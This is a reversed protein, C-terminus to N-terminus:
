ENKDDQRRATLYQPQLASGQTQASGSYRTEKSRLSIYQEDTRPYDNGKFRKTTTPTPNFGTVDAYTFHSLGKDRHGIVNDRDPLSRKKSGVNLLGLARGRSNPNLNIAGKILQYMDAKIEIFRKNKRAAEDQRLKLGMKINHEFFKPKVTNIVNFFFQRNLPRGDKRDPLYLEIGRDSYADSTIAKASLESMKPVNVMCVEHTLFVQISNTSSSSRGQNVLISYIEKKSKMISALASTRVTNIVSGDSNKKSELINSDKEVEEQARQQNHRSPPRKYEEYSQYQSDAYTEISERARKRNPDMQDQGYMHQQMFKDNSQQNSGQNNMLHSPISVQEMQDKDRTGPGYEYDSDENGIHNAEPTKREEIARHQAALPQQQHTQQQLQNNIQEFEDQMQANMAQRAGDVQPLDFGSVRPTPQRQLGDGNAQNNFGCYQSVQPYQSEGGDDLAIDFEYGVSSVEGEEYQGGGGARYPTQQNSNMLLRDSFNYDAASQRQNCSCDIKIKNRHNCTKQQLSRYQSEFESSNRPYPPDLM